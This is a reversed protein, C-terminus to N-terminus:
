RVELSPGPYVRYSRRQGDQSDLFWLRLQYKGPPASVQGSGLNQTDQAGDGGSLPALDWFEPPRQLDGAVADVMLRDGSRVQRPLPRTLYAATSFLQTAMVEGGRRYVGIALRQVSPELLNARHGPSSLWGDVIIRALEEAGESVYGEGNWLNERISGALTRHGLAVRYGPGRGEPDDHSFYRRQAMDRSHARAIQQLDEEPRLTSLGRSRREENTREFIEIELAEASRTGARMIGRTETVEPGGEGQAAAPPAISSERSDKEGGCAVMPMLSAVLVLGWRPLRGSRSSLSIGAQFASLGRQNLRSIGRAFLGSRNSIKCDGVRGLARFLSNFLQLGKLILCKWPNRRNLPPPTSATLSQKLRKRANFLHPKVTDVSISLEDAIERYKFGAKFRLVFCRRMQDPLEEVAAWLRHMNEAAIVRHEASPKQKVALVVESREGPRQDESDSELPLEQGDRKLAKADRNRNHWVNRAITYLWTKSNADGRFTSRGRFARVFTDQSLDRAEEVGAGQRRFFRLISNQHDRFLTEIDVATM